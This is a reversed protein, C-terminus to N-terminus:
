ESTEHEPLAEVLDDLFDGVGIGHEASVEYFQDIGLSYFETLGDHQKYSEIKNVLYFVPKAMKRLFDSLERDFPSLGARGHSITQVGCVRPM